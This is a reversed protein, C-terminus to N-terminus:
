DICSNIVEGTEEDGGLVGALEAGPGGGGAGGATPPTEPSSDGGSLERRTLPRHYDYKAPLMCKPVFCRPGFFHQAMLLAAQLAVPTKPAVAGM